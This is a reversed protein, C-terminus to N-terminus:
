LKLNKYIRYKKALKKIGGGTTSPTKNLKFCDVFGGKGWIPSLPSSFLPSPKWIEAKRSQFFILIFKLLPM